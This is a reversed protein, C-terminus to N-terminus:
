HNECLIHDVGYFLVDEPVSSHLAGICLYISNLSIFGTLGGVGDLAVSSALEAHFLSIIM